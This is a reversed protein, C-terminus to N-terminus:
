TRSGSRSRPIEDSVTMAEVTDIAELGYDALVAHPVVVAGVLLVLLGRAPWRSGPQPGPHLRRVLADADAVAFVRVVLVVLNAALLVWLWRPQVFTRLLYGGRGRRVVAHGGGAGAVAALLLARRRRGAYWQGAGPILTSLFAALAPSGRRGAAEPPAGLNILTGAPPDDPDRYAPERGAGGARRLVRRRAASRIATRGAGRGGSPPGPAPRSSSGGAAKDGRRALSPGVTVPSDARM